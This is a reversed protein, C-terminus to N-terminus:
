ISPRLRAILYREASPRKSRNGANAVANTASGTATMRINLGAAATAALAAVAVMGTTNAVPASGTSSPRTELRLRGLPLTVPTDKRTVVSAALRNSNNRSSTGLAVNDTQEDVRPIWSGLGLDLVRLSCRERKPQPQCYLTRTAIGLDISGKRAEGSLPDIRHYNAGIREEPCPM